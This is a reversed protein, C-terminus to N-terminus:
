ETPPEEHIINVRDSGFLELAKSIVLPVADETEPTDTERNAFAPHGEPPMAFQQGAEPDSAELSPDVFNTPSEDAPGFEAEIARTEDNAQATQQAEFANHAAQVINETAARMTPVTQTEEMVVTSDTNTSSEERTESTQPQEAQATESSAVQTDSQKVSDSESVQTNEAASEKVASHNDVTVAESTTQEAVVQVEQEEEQEEETDEIVVPQGGNRDHLLKYNQREQPWESALIFALKTSEGMKESAINELMQKLMPDNQVLGCMQRNDFSILTHNPGAALPQTGILRARQQPTLENLIVPWHQKMSVIHQRTAVNLVNYVEQLRLRYATGPSKPRPRPVLPEEKKAAVQKGASDGENLPTVKLRDSPSQRSLDDLKTEQGKLQQFVQSLQEELEAIKQRLAQVSADDAPTGASGGAGATVQPSPQEVLQVTMVELYLDPQNSFRMQNQAENLGDILTYYFSAPVVDLLPQLEAESLLTKNASSHMTLLVDRSFLILEEIFRSAQKGAQLQEELIGLAVEVERQYLAVIYQVYTIQDFSGSVKLATAVTVEENNFSLSQDLLSLSDRMGGNSARAIIALAEEEYDVQYEELIHGMHTIIDRDRLRQFDFRQTRSMITAPIKHPETTALIFLVQAPPEELTKLLANFAGTTLMHVEDIIYVKYAAQTPAYRVKDRLDRIEEVGNNSAADIEIVDAVQGATIGQCIECENCPNGDVQHPCNVAKSLIKAASTKGTGRPGTFLYAHSLQENKIANKLTDAIMSQGVLQDFNQPRWVRYLAQYSM